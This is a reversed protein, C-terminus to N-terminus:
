RGRVDKKLPAPIIASVITGIGKTSRVSAQGGLLKTREVIGILGFEGKGNTYKRKGDGEFGTGNDSILLEVRTESRSIRVQFETARAHKVINNLSEQMIRYISNEVEIPFINDVNDVSKLLKLDNAEAVKEATDVLAGTLGLRDLHIPRLDYVIDKVEDIACTAAEAIEKLQDLAHAHDGPTTLSHMARNKIIVLSQSLGDHLEAAIRAREVEQSTILKRSFDEQQASKRKLQEWRYRYVLFAVTILGVVSLTLFWWTRYFPPLVRISIAAGQTNWVGDRNAAIVRFKYEGPPLFSYYGTRRTGVEHWDRDLGELKYKFKVQASNVFSIGTYNIELNSQGPQLVIEAQSGIASQFKENEVRNGDVVIEEILVPPALQNTAVAQPDVVAIGEAMPFWLKGDRTKIGAPQRGGNGEINPLGDQKNYAISTLVKTKGDTFDNLEQRNVRFIGQNSNIWFWGRNDELICFVGNSFLGDKMSYRTFQGDKLRTLGGDYSGIWLVRDSDEYLSRVYNSALGDATTFASINENEISALGGRTGVWIKGDSGQLFAVIYDDPLGDRKTFVTAREESYRSLGRNTGFWLSNDRAQSIVSFETFAPFFGAQETFRVLKGKDLYFLDAINGMWFRGSRDEFLSTIFSTASSRLFTKFRGDKYELLSAQWVGAWVSGAKDEFLPYVNDEPLGSQRSFSNFTQTMFRALGKNTGVWIGGERDPSLHGSGIGSLGDIQMVPELLNATLEGATLSKQDIQYIGKQFVSIVLNGALDEAFHSVPAPLQVSQARGNRIRLLLQKQEDDYGFWIGALRDEYAIAYTDGTSFESFEYNIIKGDKVRRLEKETTFWLHGDRDTLVLRSRETLGEIKLPVFKGQQFRYHQYRLPEHNISFIVDGTPDNFFASRKGSRLEGPKVVVHFVGKEYFITGGDETHVWLRGSKDVFAGSMRNTTIEPTNSKNFVKFHVGDFRVLGDNTTFWIYGDPTQTLGTVSNQPLGNDTTWTDMWNQAIANETAALILLVALAISLPM